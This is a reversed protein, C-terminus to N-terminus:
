RGVIAQEFDALDRQLLKEVKGAIAWGLPALAGPPLGGSDLDFDVMVRTGDPTPEFRFTTDIRVGARHHTITYGRNLEFATIEMETTDLHGMIERTELWRTGLHVPGATLMELKRIASVHTPGHEIDTFVQFVRDLPAAIENSVAVTAM